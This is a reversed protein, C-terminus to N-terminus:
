IVEMDTKYHHWAFIAAAGRHPRWPEALARITKESPREAHGLLRGIEIQVALDGAPWIDPRGEAFLLYIEASWRGIGKIRVLQAIAEEDDQPLAALDLRGSTVEDALSRAYGIKQRSLGAGRLTEDSAAVVAAPDEIEGLAAAVKNWISQAAQVSVQQGIITRLLTAYGRDRIRPEPYGARALGAAFAPEVAGLSDLSARLQEASLGM